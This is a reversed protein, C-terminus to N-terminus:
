KGQIPNWDHAGGGPATCESNPLVWASESLNANEETKKLCKKCQHTAM